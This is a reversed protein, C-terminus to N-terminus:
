EVVVTLEYTGQLEKRIRWIYSLKLTAKGPTAARFRWVHTGGSGVNEPKDPEYTDTTKQLIAAAPESIEWGSATSPYEALRIEFENGRKLTISTGSEKPGLVPGKGLSCGALLFSVALVPLWRM